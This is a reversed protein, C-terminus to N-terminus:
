WNIPVKELLLVCNLGTVMSCWNSWWNVGDSVACVWWIIRIDVISLSFGMMTVDSKWIYQCWMLCMAVFDLVMKQVWKQNRYLHCWSLINCNYQKEYVMFVVYLGMTVGGFAM